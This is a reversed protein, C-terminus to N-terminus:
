TLSFTLPGPLTHWGRGGKGIDDRAMTGESVINKTVSNKGAGPWKSHGRGSRGWGRCM